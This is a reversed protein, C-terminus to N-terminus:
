MVEVERIVDNPHVFELFRSLRLGCFPPFDNTWFDCKVLMVVPNLRRLIPEPMFILADRHDRKQILMWSVSGSQEHSEWVEDLWKEFQQQKAGKPKDLLDAVTHKSYGRKIEITFMDLLPSGIPDTAMVDGHQNYTRKGKRGRSKARNGSGAARWFVDDRPHRKDQTWWLSLQRCIEREYSTGKFKGRSM